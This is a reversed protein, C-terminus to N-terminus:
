SRAAGSTNLFTALEQRTVSASRDVDARRFAADNWRPDSQAPAGGAIRAKLANMWAAFEVRDLAGSSDRDYRGFQEAVVSAVDQTAATPTPSPASSAPAKTGEPPIAADAEPPPPAPTARPLVPDTRVPAAPGALPSQTPAPVPTRQDQAVAPAGVIAILALAVHKTM